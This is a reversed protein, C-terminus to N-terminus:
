YEGAGMDSAGLEAGYGGGGKSMGKGLGVNANAGVNAAQPMGKAMGMNAGMNSTSPIGKGGYMPDYSQALAPAAFGTLCLVAMATVLVTLIKSLGVM